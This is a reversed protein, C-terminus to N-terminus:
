RAAIKKGAAEVEPDPNTAGGLLGVCVIFMWEFEKREGQLRTSVRSRSQLSFAFRFLVDFMAFDLLPLPFSPPHWLLVSFLVHGFYFLLPTM